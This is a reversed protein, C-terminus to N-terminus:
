RNIRSCRTLRLLLGLTIDWALDGEQFLAEAPGKWMVPIRDVVGNEELMMQIEERTEPDQVQEQNYVTLGEITDMGYNELELELDALAEIMDRGTIPCLIDKVIAGHWWAYFHIQDKDIIGVVSGNRYEYVYFAPAPWYDIIRVRSRAIDTACSIQYLQDKQLGVVYFLGEDSLGPIDRTFCEYEYTGEPKESISDMNWHVISELDTHYIDMTIAKMFAEYNGVIAMPQNSPVYTRLFQSVDSLVNESERNKHYADTVVLEGEEVHGRLAYIGADDFAVSMYDQPRTMPESVMQESGEARKYSIGEKGVLRKFNDVVSYPAMDTMTEATERYTEEM